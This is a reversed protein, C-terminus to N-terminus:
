QKFEEPTALGQRRMEDMFNKFEEQEATVRAVASPMYEPLQPSSGSRRWTKVTGDKNKRSRGALSFLEAYRKPAIGVFPEFRVKDRCDAGTDVVVSDPYLEGVLSKSYAEVYVLRKIGAAVIHKACDHCPFTTTYLVCDKTSLGHRAADMIAAMEAHVARIFDITSTFQAGKMIPAKEEQPAGTRLAEQVLQTVPVDKRAVALWDNEQLRELIDALLNERMRDSTDYGRHCDRGDPSDGCWYLGGGFKPVENTGLGVVTGDERCLAAGVQRALSASRMAAAQACFTGQEDKTPTHFTNGFLLEIFRGMSAAMSPEDCSDIIIDALPFTDRVNQGFDDRVEAEDRKLLGEADIMYESIQNSFHSEAIKTAVNQLRKERPAHAAIVFFAPGYIKRLTQVEAPRKLSRLIHAFRPISHNADGTKSERFEAIAGVGLLAVADCRKLAECLKNGATMHSHVNEEFTGDNLLSWPAQPIEHMLQSLRYVESKYDVQSLVDQLVSGVSALDTGVPGVLGFVLEPGKDDGSTGILSM